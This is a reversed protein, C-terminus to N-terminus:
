QIHILLIFSSNQHQKRQQQLNSSLHKEAALISGPPTSIFSRLWMRCRCRCYWEYKQQDGFQPFSYGTIILATVTMLLALMLAMLALTKINWPRLQDNDNASCCSLTTIRTVHSTHRTVHGRATVVNDCHQWLSHGSNVTVVARQWHVRAIKISKRVYGRVIYTKFLKEPCIYGCLCMSLKKRSNNRRSACSTGRHLTQLSCDATLLCCVCTQQM